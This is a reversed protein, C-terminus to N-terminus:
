AMDRSSDPLEGVVAPQSSEAAAARRWPHRVMIMALVLYGAFLAAMWWVYPAIDAIDASKMTVVRLAQLAPTVPLVSAIWQIYAPMQDFPWTFGSMLFAPTSMFMLYEFSALHDKFVSCLAITFPTMAIMFVGFLFFGTYLSTLSWDFGPIIVLFIFLTGAIYFVSQALVKGLMYTFPFRADERFNGNTRQYGISFAIGILMLQHIVMLLIGPVVFDGYGASPHFLNRYEAAVPVVKGIVAAANVGRAMLYKANIGANLTGVAGYVGPLSTGYTFINATNVWVKFSAQKGQKVRVAFDSPIFVLMEAGRRKIADWGEEVSDSREIIDIEQTGQLFMTFARSLASNDQDIVVTPRQWATNNKYLYSVTPPYIIPIALLVFLVPKNRLVAKWEDVVAWGLFRLWGTM